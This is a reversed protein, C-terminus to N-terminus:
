MLLQHVIGKNLWTLFQMESVEQNDSLEPWDLMYLTELLPPMIRKCVHTGQHSCAGSRSIVSTPSGTPSCCLIM